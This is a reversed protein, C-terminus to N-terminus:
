DGGTNYLTRIAELADSDLSSLYITFDNAIQHCRESVTETGLFVFTESYGIASIQFDTGVIETYHNWGNPLALVPPIEHRFEIDFTIRHEYLSEPIPTTFCGASLPELGLHYLKLAISKCVPTVPVLSMVSCKPNHNRYAYVGCRLCFLDSM